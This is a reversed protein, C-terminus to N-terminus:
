EVQADSIKRPPGPRPADLLWDLRLDVFRQRWKGVTQATVRLRHAIDGNM